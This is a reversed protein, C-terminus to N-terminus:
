SNNTSKWERQETVLRIKEASAQGKLGGGGGTVSDRYASFDPDGTIQDAIAPDTQRWERNSYPKGTLEKFRKKNSKNWADTLQRDLNDTQYSLRYAEQMKAEVEDATDSPSITLAQLSDIITAYGQELETVQPPKANFVSMQSTAPHLAGTGAAMENFSNFVQMFKEKIGL